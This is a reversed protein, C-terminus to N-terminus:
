THRSPRIILIHRCIIHFLYAWVWSFFLLYTGFFLGFFILILWLLCSHTIGKKHVLSNFNVHLIAHIMQLTRDLGSISYVGIMYVLGLLAEGAIATVLHVMNLWAAIEQMEHDQWNEDGDLKSGMESGLGLEDLSRGIYILGNILGIVSGISLLHVFIITMKILLYRWKLQYKYQCQQCILQYKKKKEDDNKGEEEEQELQNHSPIKKKNDIIITSLCIAHIFHQQCPCLNIWYKKDHHQILYPGVTTICHINNIPAEYQQCHSCYLRKKLSYKRQQQSQNNSLIFNYPPPLLTYQDTINNM